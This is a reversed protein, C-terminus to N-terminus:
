IHILSLPTGATGVAQIIWDEQGAQWAAPASLGPKPARVLLGGFSYTTGPPGDETANRVRVDVTAVFDGTVSKFALAAKYDQFWSSAHPRMVLRAEATNISVNALQDAPWGETQYLRQFGTLAAASEFEESLPALDDQASTECQTTLLAATLLTNILKGPRM